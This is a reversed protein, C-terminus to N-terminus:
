KKAAQVQPNFRADFYQAAVRAQKLLGAAAFLNILRQQKMIRSEDIQVYAGKSSDFSAAAVDEPLKTLKAFIPM